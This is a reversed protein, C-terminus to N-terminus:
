QVRDGYLKEPIPRIRDLHYTVNGTSSRIRCPSKRDYYQALYETFIRGYYPAYQTHALLMLSLIKCDLAARTTEVRLIQQTIIKFEPPMHM